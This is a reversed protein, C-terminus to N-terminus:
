RNTLVDRNQKYVAWNVQTWWVWVVIIHLSRSVVGLYAANACATRFLKGGFTMNQKGMEESKISIDVESEQESDEKENHNANQEDRPDGIGTCVHEAISVPKTDSGDCQVSLRYTQTWRDVMEGSNEQLANCPITTVYKKPCDYVNETEMEEKTGCTDQMSCTDLQYANEPELDCREETVKDGGRSLLQDDMDDPKFNLDSRCKKEGNSKKPYDYVAETAMEKYCEKFMDDIGKLHQDVSRDQLLGSTDHEDCVKRLKWDSGDNDKIQDADVGNYLLLEGGGETSYMCSQQAVQDDEFASAM